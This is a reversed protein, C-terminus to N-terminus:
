RAAGDVPASASAAPQPALAREVLHSLIADARFYDEALTRAARCHFEYRSNLDDIAALAEDPNSFALVGDGAPIVESFGTEQTIVPRGSAMYVASRESFWGSRSVVYGHKAITFEAKSEQIFRRYSWLDRTTVRSDRVGWGHAAILGGPSTSGGLALEFIPGARRPLNMYPEFSEAKMGYQVGEYERMHYSHWQMVTTLKGEARAPTVPWANLVVPQRTPQWPLGDDPIACGPRGFNEGFTFYATHMRANEAAPAHTLHEVQTFAPDTDVFARAPIQAFWPRMPNVGSLNLLLDASACVDLARSAAPGLWRSTHADFYAWREALGVDRFCRATFDLGYTPDEDTVSRVPDYCGPFDDSDEIFYVDHGLAALGMVYQLHHWALGGLPGRVIYGLVVVRLRSAEKAYTM